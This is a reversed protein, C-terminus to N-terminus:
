FYHRAFFRRIISEVEELPKPQFRHHSIQYFFINPHVMKTKRGFVGGFGLDVIETWLGKCWDLPEVQEQDMRSVKVCEQEFTRHAEHDSTIDVETRLQLLEQAM